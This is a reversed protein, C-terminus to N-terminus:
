DLIRGGQMRIVRDALEPRWDFLWTPDHEWRDLDDLQRRCAAKVWKCAPILGAVVEQAYEISEAVHDIAQINGM